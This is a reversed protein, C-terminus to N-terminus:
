IADKKCGDQKLWKFDLGSKLHDLNERLQGNIYFFM